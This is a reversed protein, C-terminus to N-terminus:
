TIRLYDRLAMLIRGLHNKGTGDVGWFRDGWNNGEILEASGTDILKQRLDPHRTFKDYLISAMVVLKVEEWGERLELRRGMRKVRGPSPELRIRKRAELDLTKAAQYAHESSPYMEDDYEVEAPWFNSLWGYRGDFKSIQETM